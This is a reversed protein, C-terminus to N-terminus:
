KKGTMFGKRPESCELVVQWAQWQVFPIRLLLSDALELCGLLPRFIPTKRFPVAALTALHYFTPEVRAFWKEALLIQERRLIHEVEWPTRLEPTRNRYARILPNHALAETCIAAGDPKLVRQIESMAAPFDLHHLVGYEIALDFSNDEFQLSEADMVLFETRDGVGEAQARQKCNAISVDSIDIGVVFAGHRAAFISDEGNGCGYDLLRKGRCRSQIWRDVYARSKTEISYYKFNSWHPDGEAREEVDSSYRQFPMEERLHSHFEAEEKKRSEMSGTTNLQMM